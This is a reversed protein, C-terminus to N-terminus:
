WLSDVQNVDPQKVECRELQSINQHALLPFVGRVAPDTDREM